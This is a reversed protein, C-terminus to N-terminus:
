KQAVVIIAKGLKTFDFIRDIRLLFPVIITYVHFLIPNGMFKGTDHKKKTISLYVVYLFNIFRYFPFGTIFIKARSFKKVADTIQSYTFRQVHGAHEDVANWLKPNYPTTIILKGGKKLHSYAIKIVRQYDFVHEIVEQLICYDFMGLEGEKLKFFDKKIIRAKGEVRNQMIYKKALRYPQDYLEVGVVNHGMLAAAVLNRGAGCGLDLVRASKGKLNPLVINNSLFSDFPNSIQGFFIVSEKQNYLEMKKSRKEQM